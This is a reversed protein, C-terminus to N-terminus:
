RAVDVVSPDQSPLPVVLCTPSPSPGSPMSPSPMSTCSPSPSPTPSPSPSSSPSQIPIPTPSSSPSPSPGPTPEPTPRPSPLPSPSAEPRSTAEVPHPRRPLGNEIRPAPTSEHELRFPVAPSPEVDGGAPDASSPSPSPIAPASGADSATEPSRGGAYVLLVSAVAVAGVVLATSAAVVGGSAASASSVSLRPRSRVGAAVAGGAEGAGQSIWAAYGAAASGLVVVLLVGAVRRAAMDVEDYALRCTLCDALHDDVKRRHAASLTDRAYRGAREIVWKHEDGVQEAALHAQIWEQRLGERARTALAAVTNPRLGLIPAIDAPRMREIETYWLIEQWRSPLSRFARVALSRDDALASAFEGARDDAVDDVTDIPVESHRRGWEAAVNRATILAYSRFSEIPGKGRQITHLIRSFTEGVVDDPDFSTFHRAAARVAPSHREWLHAYASVDGRRVAALLDRDSRVAARRSM